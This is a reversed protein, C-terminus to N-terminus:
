DSEAEKELKIKENELEKLKIKLRDAENEERALAVEQEKPAIAKRNDLESQILGVGEAILNDLSEEFKKQSIQGNLHSQCLAYWGDRLM